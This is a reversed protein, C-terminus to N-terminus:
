DNELYQRNYFLWDTLEGNNFADLHILNPCAQSIKILVRVDFGEGWELDLHIINPFLHNIQM